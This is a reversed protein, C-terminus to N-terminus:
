RGYRGIIEGQAIIHGQMAKSVEDKTAGPKLDLARDLAYLKFFYRHTSGRPPCPGGYGVKGFSNKGQKFGSPTDKKPVNESFSAITPQIGYAVWHVWTGSPADPDDCILALEKTGNPIKGWSLQPSVDEGDCTYRGPIMEGAKFINSTVEFTEVASPMNVGEKQPKVNESGCIPKLSFVMALVVLSRGSINM